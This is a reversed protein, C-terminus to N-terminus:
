IRSTDKENKIDDGSRVTMMESHKIVVSGCICMKKLLFLLMFSIFDLM